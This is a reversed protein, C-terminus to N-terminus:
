LAYNRKYYFNVFISSHKPGLLDLGDEYVKLGILDHFSILTLISYLFYYIIQLTTTLDIISVGFHKAVDYIVMAYVSFKYFNCVEAM